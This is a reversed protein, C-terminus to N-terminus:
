SEHTECVVRRTKRITFLWEPWLALITPGLARGALYRPVLVIGSASSIFFSTVRAEEAEELPSRLPHPGLDFRVPPPQAECDGLARKTYYDVWRVLSQGARPIELEEVPVIEAFLEWLKPDVPVELDCRIRGVIELIVILYRADRGYHRQRERFSLQSHRERIASIENFLFPLAAEGQGAVADKLEGPEHHYHTMAYRLVVMQDPLPLAVM